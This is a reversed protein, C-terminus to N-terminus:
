ICFLFVNLHTKCVYLLPQRVDLYICLICLFPSVDTIHMKIKTMVAMAAMVAMEAVAVMAAMAATVEM